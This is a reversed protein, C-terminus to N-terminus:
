RVVGVKRGKLFEAVGAGGYVKEVAVRAAMKGSLCTEFKGIGAEGEEVLGAALEEWDVGSLERIASIAQSGGIKDKPHLSLNGSVWKGSGVKELGAALLRNIAGGAFTHWRLGDSTDELPAEGEGVLGEYSARLEALDARASDSLGKPFIGDRLVGKMEECLRKGLFGPSGLWVPIKGAEAPEVQCTGKKWDITRVQWARGGLRFCLEEPTSLKTRLFSAQVSGVDTGGHLVRIVSKCEFVAYLEFFNQRGYLKEGRRGLTLRGDAEHLIERKVMIDVIQDIAAQDFSAMPVAGGIWPLIRRRSLGGQQLCLALIQHALVHAPWTPPRVEEVWGKQVLRVLAVAQLLSESSRCIMSCNSVTGPRRGTRGMRQLLSAVSTPADLQVVYDLDGVDIGLEM